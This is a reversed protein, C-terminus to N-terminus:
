RSAHIEGRRRVDLVAALERRGRIGLKTYIRQLHNEVTRPSVYLRDAVERNTHGQAALLAVDLERGTLPTVAELDTLAM